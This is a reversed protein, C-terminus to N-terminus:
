IVGLDVTAKLWDTITQSLNLGVTYGRAHVHPAFPTDVTKADTPVVGPNSGLQNPAVGAGALGFMNFVAGGPGAPDGAAGNGSISNLGMLNGLFASTGPTALGLPILNQFLNWMGQKSAFLNSFTANSNPRDTGLADPLCGMVGSDDRHCLQKDGRVRTDNEAGFEGFIDLTTNDSPQWRVSGRGSYAGLSNVRSGAEM